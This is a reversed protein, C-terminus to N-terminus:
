KNIALLGHNYTQLKGYCIAQNCYSVSVTQKKNSPINEINQEYDIYKNLEGFADDFHRLATKGENQQMATQALRTISEFSSFLEEYDICIPAPEPQLLTNHDIDEDVVDDVLTPSLNEKEIETGPELIPMAKNSHNIIINGNLDQLTHENKNNSNNEEYQTEQISEILSRSRSSKNTNNELSEIRQILQSHTKQQQNVLFECSKISNELSNLRSDFSEVIQSYQETITRILTLHQSINLPQEASM